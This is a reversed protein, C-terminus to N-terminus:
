ANEPVKLLGTQETDLREYYYAKEVRVSVDLEARGNRQPTVVIVVCGVVCLVLLSWELWSNDEFEVLSIPLMYFIGGIMTVLGSIGVIIGEPIPFAANCIQEYLLPVCGNLFACALITSAFLQEKSYDIYQSCLLSVWLFMLSAIVLMIVLITKLRRSCLDSFRASIFGLVSSGILCTFGLWGAEKQKIGLHEFAIGFIVVWTSYVGIMIGTYVVLLCLFGNRILHLFVKTYGMRTANASRSPPTPPVNPVLTVAILLLLATIGTEIYILTMIEEEMIDKNLVVSTTSANFVGYTHTPGQDSPITSETTNQYGTIVQGFVPASVLLPNIIYAIGLGVYTSMVAISTSTARENHPFWAVSMAAPGSYGIVNGCGIFTQGLLAPWTSPTLNICCRLIYGVLLFSTSSVMGIRIGKTDIFYSMPIISLFMGIRGVNLIDAIFSDGWGFSYKVSETIPGWTNWSGTILMSSISFYCLVWWRRAYVRPKTSILPKVEEM